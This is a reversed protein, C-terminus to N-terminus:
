RLAVVRTWRVGRYRGVNVGLRAFLWLGLGCWLGLVGLRHWALVAAGIPLFAALGALTSVQLFRFDSAGMLVGDLVFPRAFLRLEVGTFCLAAGYERCIARFAPDSVDEM